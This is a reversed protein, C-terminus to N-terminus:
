TRSAAKILEASIQDTYPSKYGRLGENATEVDFPSPEPV